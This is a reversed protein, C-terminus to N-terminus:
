RHAAARLAHVCADDRRAQDAGRPGARHDVHQRRPRARGLTRGGAGASARAHRDAPRLTWVGPVTYVVGDTGLELDHCGPRQAPDIEWEYIVARVADGSPPPPVAFHPIAPAGTAFTNIITDFLVTRTEDFFPIGGYGIMRNIVQTWEEATRPERWRHDGIQHCNACARAFDGAVHQSPWQLLSKFYTPPLQSNLDDTTALGFDVSAGTTALVDVRDVVNDRWGIRRARVRYARPTIPPFDYRGDTDTFVTISAANPDDFATM